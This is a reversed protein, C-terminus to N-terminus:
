GKIDFANGLYSIHIGNVYQKNLQMAKNYLKNLFTQPFLRVYEFQKYKSIMALLELGIDNVIFEWDRRATLGNLLTILHAQNDKLLTEIKGNLLSVLDARKINKIVELADGYEMDFINKLASIDVYSTQEKEFYKNFVEIASNLTQMEVVANKSPNVDPHLQKAKQKYAKKAEEKTASPDIELILAADQLSKVQYAFKCFLQAIDFLLKM